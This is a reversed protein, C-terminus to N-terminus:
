IPCSMIPLDGTLAYDSIKLRSDVTGICEQLTGRQHQPSGGIDGFLCVDRVCRSAMSGEGYVQSLM